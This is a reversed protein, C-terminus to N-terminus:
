PMSSRPWSLEPATDARIPARLLRPGCAAPLHVPRKQVRGPPLLLLHESPGTLAEKGLTLSFLSAAGGGVGCSVQRWQGGSGQDQETPDRTQKQTGCSLPPRAGRGAHGLRPRTWFGGPRGALPQPSAVGSPDQLLEGGVGGAGPPHSWLDGPRLGWSEVAAGAPQLGVRWFGRGPGEWPRMQPEGPAGARGTAWRRVCPGGGVVLPECDINGKHERCTRM